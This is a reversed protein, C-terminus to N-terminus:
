SLMPIAHNSSEHPASGRSEVYEPRVGALIARVGRMFVNM